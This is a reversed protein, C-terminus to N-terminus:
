SSFIMGESFTIHITLKINKRIFGLNTRHEHPTLTSQVHVYTSRQADETQDLKEAEQTQKAQRAEHAVDALPLLYTM